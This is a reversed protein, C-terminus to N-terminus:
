HSMKKKQYFNGVLYSCVLGIIFSLISGGATFGSPREEYFSFMLLQIEFINGIAILVGSVSFFTLLGVIVTKVM